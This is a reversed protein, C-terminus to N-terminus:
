RKTVCHSMTRQNRHMQAAKHNSAANRTLRNVALNKKLLGIVRRRTNKGSNIDEADSQDGDEDNGLEANSPVINKKAAGTFSSIRTHIHM